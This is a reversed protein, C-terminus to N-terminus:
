RGRSRRSAPSTRVRRIVNCPEAPLGVENRRHVQTDNSFWRRTQEQAPQLNRSPERLSAWIDAKHDVAEGKAALTQVDNTRVLGQVQNDYSAGGRALIWPLDETRRPSVCSKLVDSEFLDRRM